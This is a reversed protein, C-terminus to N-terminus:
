HKQAYTKEGALVALRVIQGHEDKQALRNEPPPLPCTAYDTYACPPNTARNFDIALTGDASVAGTHLYRGVGYTERGSSRDQFNLNLGRAPDGLAQLTWHQGDKEFQVYGPNPVDSVDGIVNVIPLTTGPPNAVFRAQVRWDPDAPFVNLGTFALRTPADAHRVRLAFKDGRGIVTIQGKGGDYRLKTTGNRNEPQLPIEGQVPQGDLSVDAGAAATFYVTDGRREVQGLQAPGIALRIASGEGSGVSHVGPEVWHLGILSLWGDPASLASERQALWQAHEARFAAADPPAAIAGASAVPPAGDCAALSLLAAVSLALTSRQLYPTKM